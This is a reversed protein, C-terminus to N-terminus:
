LSAGVGSPSIVVRDLGRISALAAELAGDFPPFVEFRSLGASSAKLLGDSLDPDARRPKQM